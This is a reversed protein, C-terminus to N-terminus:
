LVTRECLICVRDSIFTPHLLKKVTSVVVLPEDSPSCELMERLIESVNTCPSVNTRQNCSYGPCEVLIHQISLSFVHPLTESLLYGHTFRIHGIRLRPNRFLGRSSIPHLFTSWLHGFWSSVAFRICSDWVSEM